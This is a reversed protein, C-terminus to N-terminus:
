AGGEVDDWSVEPIDAVGPGMEEGSARDLRGERSRLADIVMRRTEASPLAVQAGQAAWGWERESAGAADAATIKAKVLYEVLKFVKRQRAAVEFANRPQPDPANRAAAAVRDLEQDPYDSM